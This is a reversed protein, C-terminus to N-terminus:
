LNGARVNARNSTGGHDSPRQGPPLRSEVRDYFDNLKRLYAERSHEARVRKRARKALGRRLVADDLLRLIGDGLATPEAAVLHAIDDDLVQTHTPLRTALVPTGSDLYSYIKMPTNVGLTRPSVLITAQSLFHGLQTTPRRGVLHVRGSLKLDAVRRRFAEIDEDSGGIIVLQVARHWEAARRFGELLLDIGQYPMLNGVYLVLPGDRGITDRLREDPAAATGRDTGDLLSFDELRAVLHGPAADCAIRELASSVAVVGLSGRIALRECAELTSRVRVLWGFREILQQHLSSDMDYVYPLRFLPKLLLAIFSAEEVAHVLDYRRRRLLHPLYALMVLDCLLKKWSPGPPIDRVGPIRPIRILRCGPIERDEGEHYTLLDLDYGRATLGRALADVAMPTGRDQFFPHPALMLVRLPRRAPGHSM